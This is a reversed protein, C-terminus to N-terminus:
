NNKGAREIMRFDLGPIASTARKMFRNFASTVGDQGCMLGATIVENVFLAAILDLTQGNTLEERRMVDAIEALAKEMKQQLEDKESM